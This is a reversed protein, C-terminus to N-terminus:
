KSISFIHMKAQKGSFNETNEAIDGKFTAKKWLQL